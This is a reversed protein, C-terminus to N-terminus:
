RERRKDLARAVLAITIMAAIAAVIILAARWSFAPDLWNSTTMSPVPSSTPGNPFVVDGPLALAVGFSAVAVAALAAVVWAWAKM